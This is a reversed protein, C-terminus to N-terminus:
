MAYLGSAGPHFYEDSGPCRAPPFTTDGAHNVIQGSLKLRQAMLDIAQKALIDEIRGDRRRAEFGECEGMSESAVDVAPRSFIIHYIKVSGRSANVADHPAEMATAARRGVHHGHMAEFLAAYMGHGAFIAFAASPMEGPLITEPVPKVMLGQKGKRDAGRVEGDKEIALRSGPNLEM